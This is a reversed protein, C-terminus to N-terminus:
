GDELPRASFLVDSSGAPLTVDDVRAVTTRIGYKNALSALTSAASSRALATEMGEPDGVVSVVYPSQLGVLDVLVAAGASRIATTATLRQGNISIGEAGAAWLANVLTQLDQDQVYALPDEEALVGDEVTVVMGPGRVAVTGNVLNDRRVVELTEPSTSELTADRLEDISDQLSQNEEVALDVQDRREVIQEELLQRAQLAAPEPERLKATATATVLGLLAALALLWAKTSWGRVPQQGDARRAAAEAYGPDLPRHMVENLLTMSEDVPRRGAMSEDTARRAPTM